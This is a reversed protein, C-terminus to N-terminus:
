LLERQEPQEEVNVRVKSPKVVAAILQDAVFLVSTAFISAASSASLLIPVPPTVVATPVM